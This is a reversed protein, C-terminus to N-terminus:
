LQTKLVHDAHGSKQGSKQGSKPGSKQGSKPGPKKPGSFATYLEEPVSVICHVTRGSGLSFVPFFMLFDPFQPDRDRIMPKRIAHRWLLSSVLNANSETFKVAKM